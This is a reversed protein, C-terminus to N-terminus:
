KRWPATEPLGAHFEDVLSKEYSGAYQGAFFRDLAEQYFREWSHEEEGPIIPYFLANNAKAAKHDGPADGVMLIRDSPYKDGAALAIHEAKTGMEQGAVIRVYSDIGHEAWERELTECPTQSVVLVDAKAKMLELSERVKPFPPLNRVMNTITENVEVSWKLATELDEDLLSEAKAQLAPNGLKTEQDIWTRLGKMERIHVGRARVEPRESLLDLSRVLGIFRNVGRTNSYLNVFEWVERAYKAVGQLDLHNIFSPCFCEKHKLEMSDFVCGDSDIGIFFEKEPKMDRLMKQPDSM